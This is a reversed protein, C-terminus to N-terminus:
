CVIPTLRLTSVDDGDGDENNESAVPCSIINEGGTAAAQGNVNVSQLMCEFFNSQSKSNGELDALETFQVWEQLVCLYNHTGQVVFDM